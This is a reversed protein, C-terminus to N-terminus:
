KSGVEILQMLIKNIKKNESDIFVKGYKKCSEWYEFMAFTYLLGGGANENIM